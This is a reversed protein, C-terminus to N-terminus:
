ERTVAPVFVSRTSPAAAPSYTQAHDLAFAPACSCLARVRLTILPASGDVGTGAGISYAGIALAGAGDDESLVVFTRGAANLPPAATVAEIVFQAANYHLGAEFAGINRAHAASLAIEYAQGAVALAPAGSLQMRV